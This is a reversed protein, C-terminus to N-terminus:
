SPLSPTPVQSAERKVLLRVDPETRPGPYSPERGGDDKVAALNRRASVLHLFHAKIRVATRNRDFRGKGAGGFFSCNQGKGTM